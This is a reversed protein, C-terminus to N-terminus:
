WFFRPLATAGEGMSAGQVSSEESAHYDHHPGFAEGPAYRVLQLPEIYDRTVAVGAQSFLSAVRTSIDDTLALEELLEPRKARVEDERGAYLFGWLMPCSSSTRRSDGHIQEGSAQSKLPSKIFGGRAEALQVLQAVEDAGVLGHIYTLQLEDHLARMHVERGGVVYKETIPPSLAEGNLQVLPPEILKSAGVKSGAACSHDDATNASASVALALLLLRAM